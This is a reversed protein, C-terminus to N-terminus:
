QVRCRVQRENGLSVNKDEEQRYKKRNLSRFEQFSIENDLCSSYILLLLSLTKKPIERKMNGDERERERERNEGEDGPM